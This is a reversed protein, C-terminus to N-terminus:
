KKVDFIRLSVISLKTASSYNTVLNTGDKAPDAVNITNGNIGTCYVFHDGESSDKYDIQIIVKKGSATLDNIHKCIKNLQTTDRLSYRNTEMTYSLGKFTASIYPKDINGFVINGGSAAATRFKANVEGPDDDTVGIDNLMIAASTVACGTARMRKSTSNLTFDESWPSKIQKYALYGGTPTTSSGSQQNNGTLDVNSFEELWKRFAPPAGCSIWNDNYEMIDITEDRMAFAMDDMINWREPYKPHKSAGNAALQKVMEDPDSSSFRNALGYTNDRVACAFVAAQAYLPLSKYDVGNKALEKEIREEFTVNSGSTEDVSFLAAEFTDNMFKNYDAKCLKSLAEQLQANPKSEDIARNYYSTEDDAFPKLEAYFTSDKNYLYKVYTPLEINTAQYPGLGGDGKNMTWPIGGYSADLGDTFAVSGSSSCEGYYMIYYYGLPHGAWQLNSGDVKNESNSSNAGNTTLEDYKKRFRAKSDISNGKDALVKENESYDNASNRFDALFLMIVALLIVILTVAILINAWAKKSLGPMGKDNM